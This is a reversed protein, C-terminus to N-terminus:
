QMLGDDALQQTMYVYLLAMQDAQQLQNAAGSHGGEMNEYYFVAHGNEIMRAAMKRAHGPHVRDDRTSTYLLAKPYQVDSKINQYPSYASIIERMAPDSPDGYEAMWSAGPPMEPYRLMDLLPAFSAAANFLDPRQTFAVGALLGGNSRGYVGLHKPSSIGRAILDEAVAIFDDYSRQKNELTAARHWAPGFESGGRINAVVYAGGRELWLKGVTGLYSPTSSIEFGGYGYLVTPTTGDLEIDAPHIVFYPINTGDASVAEYQNVVAGAADFRGPVSQIREAKLSVTDITYLSEPLLFSEVSAFVFRDAIGDYHLSVMALEPLEITQGIWNDDSFTYATLKGTVNELTTALVAGRTIRVQQLSTRRTPEFVTHIKGVKENALFDSLSFSVLAGQVVIQGNIEWDESLQILLQGDYLGRLAVRGPLPLRVLQSDGAVVFMEQEFFSISRRVISVIGEGDYLGSSAIWVDSSEGEFLTEASELTQGRKWRKVIRAYGSDTMSGPGFDSHVMLTDEDVWIAGSKAEPLHFGNEVFSATGADFERKTNADSGGRSLAIMCREYLPPLCRLDRASWVWNENEKEALKDLDLLLQWDPANGIYEKLKVRRWIGRVHKDDQWFNYVYGGRLSGSPIRDKATLIELSEQRFVSYRPDATLAKETAVNQEAVWNLARESDVEELWLYADVPEQERKDAPSCAILGTLAVAIISLKRFAM